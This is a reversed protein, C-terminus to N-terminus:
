LGYTLYTMTGAKRPPLTPEPMATPMYPPVPLSSTTWTKRTFVQHFSSTSDLYVWCPDLTKCTAVVRPNISKNQLFGIRKFEKNSVSVQAMGTLEDHQAATLNPCNVISHDEGGCNFCNQKGSSNPLMKGKDDKKGPVLHPPKKESSATM